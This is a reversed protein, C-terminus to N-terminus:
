DKRHRIKNIGIVLAEHVTTSVKDTTAVIISLCVFYIIFPVVLLIFFGQGTINRYRIIQISDGRDVSVKRGFGSTINSDEGDALSYTHYTQSKNILERDFKTLEDLDYVVTTEFSGNEYANVTNDYRGIQEVSHKQSTYDTLTFSTIQLIVTVIIISLSIFYAFDFLEKYVM